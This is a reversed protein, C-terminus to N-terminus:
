VTPGKARNIGWRSKDVTAKTPPPPSVDAAVGTTAADNAVAQVTSPAYVFHRTLWGSVAPIACLAVVLATLSNSMDDTVGVDFARLVAFVSMLVASISTGITGSPETAMLNKPVPKTVPTDTM